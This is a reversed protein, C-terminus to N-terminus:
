EHNKGLFMKLNRKGNQIYSKVQNMSYGTAEAIENYSKAELYFLRVCKQQEPLLQMLGSELLELQKEKEMVGNLHVDDDIEMFLSREIEYGEEHHRRSKQSRILMLCQNKSVTYLWSRFNDIEMKRLDEILKEFIQMLADKASDEDKLYKMCVGLVLHSYRNFLESICKGDGKRRYLLLIESDSLDRM